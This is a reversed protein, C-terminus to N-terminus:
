MRTKKIQKYILNLILGLFAVAIAIYFAKTYDGANNVLIDATLKPAFFAATSYGVFIIGYNVGQNIPGYNEMVMPPFVGM